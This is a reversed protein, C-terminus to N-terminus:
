DITVGGNAEGFSNYANKAFFSRQMDVVVSLPSTSIVAEDHFASDSIILERLTNLTAFEDSNDEMRCGRVHVKARGNGGGTAISSESFLTDTNDEFVTDHVSIGVPTHFNSPMTEEFSFLANNAGQVYGACNTVECDRMVVQGLIPFTIDGTFDDFVVVGGSLGDFTCRTMVVSCPTDQALIRGHNGTVDINNLLVIPPTFRLDQLPPHTGINPSSIMARTRETTGLNQAHISIGDPLGSADIILAPPDFCNNDTFHCGPELNKHLTITQGSLAPSFEIKTLTDSQSSQRVANRLNTGPQGNADDSSTVLISPPEFLVALNAAVDPDAPANHFAAVPWPQPVLPDIIGSRQIGTTYTRTSVSPPTNLYQMLIDGHDFVLVQFSFFGSSGTAHNVQDWQFVHVGGTYHPHPSDHFYQYYIGRPSSAIELDAHYGYLRGGPNSGPLDTGPDSRNVDIYGEVSVAVHYVVEDYFPFPVEFEMEGEGTSVNGGVVETGTSRINVWDFVPGNTDDSTSITYGSAHGCVLLICCIFLSPIRM